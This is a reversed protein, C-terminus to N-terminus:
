FRSFPTELRREHPHFWALSLGGSVAALLVAAALFLPALEQRDSVFALRFGLDQFVKDLEAVSSATAAQAGTLAAIRAMRGRDPPLPVTGLVRANPVGVAVTYIPVQRAGAARAAALPDAGQADGDSVLVLVAAGVPHAAQLDDLARDIGSTMASPGFARLSTIAGRIADRDSTPRTRTTAAGAFGVVGIQWRGPIRDVLRLTAHQAAELRTPRVDPAHMTGSTDIVLEIIGQRQPKVVVTYPRAAALPLSVMALLAVGAVLHRRWGRRPRGTTGDEPVVGPASSRPAIRVRHRRAIGVAVYAVVTAPALLVTWLLAPWRFSM